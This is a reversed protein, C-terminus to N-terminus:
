DSQQGAANEISRYYARLEEATAESVADIAPLTHSSTDFLVSPDQGEYGGLNPRHIRYGILNRLAVPFHRAV